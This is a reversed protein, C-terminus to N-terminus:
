ARSGPGAAERRPATGIAKRLVPGLLVVLVLALLFATVPREIFIGLDGRGMFLSQRFANEMLPGLVVALIIPATDFGARRLTFGIVGLALMFYLDTVSNKDAFTGVMVFIVIFALLLGQPVRLLRVWLAVLPLNLILLLVNGVYMSAIVGWFVEPRQTLLLPGPQVGQVLLAALLLATAPGFPIGLALVPVMQGSTAANNAAEPGAVGEIAGKGFEEPRRSLRRELKWSAFTSLVPLPGPFVGFAFGLGTGRFIAPLSRRWEERRPMLDRLSIGPVSTTSAGAQAIMLVEPIGYLGIAVPVLDIGQLLETVGFTFRTVGGVPDLGVTAIALGFGLVLLGNWASGGTLRSLSLLGLAAIAFYEPPGFTVGVQALVPAFFMVGILGVSGAIFSGVAAVALAAGARGKKTMQYGDITTVVSAAEGPINVLISTTSGGYQSGYYIGALMILATDARFQTTVTLLLAMAGLPGIGPLVGVLTGLFVGLAAALVNEPTLAVSFGYALGELPSM